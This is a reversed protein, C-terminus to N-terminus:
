PIRRLFRFIHEKIAVAVRAIQAMAPRGDDLEALNEVRRHQDEIVRTVALAFPFDALLAAEVGGVSSILPECFCLLRRRLSNEQEAGREAAADGGIESGALVM